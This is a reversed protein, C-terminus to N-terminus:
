VKLCEGQKTGMQQKLFFLSLFLTLLEAAPIAIFTGPGALLTPLILLMLAPFILSRALAISGSYTPKELAAFYAMLVINISSLLFVPSVWQFIQGTLQLTDTEARGIFLNAVFESGFLALLIFGLGVVIGSGQTLKLFTAIRDHQRAGSNASVLMQLTDGFGFHMTTQIKLLFNVISMAVLGTVGFETIVIWNFLLGILAGSADGIGDSIGNKMTSFVELWKDRVFTWRLQRQKRLFHSCLILFGSFASIGSGLAAGVIGMDMQGVFLWTLVINVGASSIMSISALTPNHDLGVFFNLIFGSPLFLNFLLIVLLYDYLQPALHENAGLLLIVTNLSLIALLALLAVSGFVTLVAQTFIRSADDSNGEGLYRGCRISAGTAIMIEVSMILSVVPFALNVVALADSGVYNGLFYGDIISVSSLCLLGLTWPILHYLYVMLPKGTLKNLKNTNLNM